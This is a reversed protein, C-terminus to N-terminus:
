SFSTGSTASGANGSPPFRVLRTGVSLTDFLVYWNIETYNILSLLRVKTSSFCPCHKSFFSVHFTGVPTRPNEAKALHLVYRWWIWMMMVDSEIVIQKGGCRTKQPHMMTLEKGCFPRRGSRTQEGTDGKEKRWRDVFVAAHSEAAVSIRVKGYTCVIDM